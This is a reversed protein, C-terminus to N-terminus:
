SVDLILFDLSAEDGTFPASEPNQNLALHNGFDNMKKVTPQSNIELGTCSTKSLKDSHQSLSPRRYTDEFKKIRAEYDFKLVTYKTELVAQPPSSSSAM